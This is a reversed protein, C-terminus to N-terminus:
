DWMKIASQGSRAEMHRSLRRSLPCVSEAEEPEPNRSADTRYFREFIRGAEEPSVGQGNDEIELHIYEKEERVRINIVGRAKNNYKISNSIINNIFGYLQMLIPLILCVDDLFM